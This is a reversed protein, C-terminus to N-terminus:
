SPLILKRLQQPYFFEKNNLQYFTSEGAKVVAIITGFGDPEVDTVSNQAYAYSVREGISFNDKM